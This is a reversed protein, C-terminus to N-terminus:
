GQGRAGKAAARRAEAEGLGAMILHVARATRDWRYHQTMRARAREGLAQAQRPNGLVQDIAERLESPSEPQVSRITGQSRQIVEALAGVSTAVVCAGCGAAEVAAMGCPEYRSPVVVVDSARYLAGLVKESLTGVLRVRDSLGTEALHRELGDRDPGDGVLVLHINHAGAGAGFCAELVDRIGGTPSLPAVCVALKEDDAAFLRRFDAINTDSQFRPANVGWPVSSIRGHPLSHTRELEGRLFDSPVLVHAAHGCAWAQM